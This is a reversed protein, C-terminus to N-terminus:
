IRERHVMSNIWLAFGVALPILFYSALLFADVFNSPNASYGLRFVGALNRIYGAAVPITITFLLIFAAIRGAVWVLAYGRIVRYEQIPIASLDAIRIRPFLHSLQNRLFAQTDNMLNRCGFCTAIVYYLDTRIFLFCQWFIRMVYTFAIARLVRTWGIPVLGGYRHQTALFLVILAGSVADILIGALLPLYRQKKPIAWLGTLDTEAVLYWLRNGIGMRSNIGVARAATLHGLEHVFITAYVAILLITWSLTRHDPFYLDSARPALEPQLGAASLAAAILLCCATLVPRSFIRRAWCQPFDSFHYRKHSQELAKVESLGSVRDEAAFPKVIGNGEMLTLFDNLDPAEGHKREYCNATEGVSKGQALNELIELAERPVAVFVGTEVRGIIADDGELQVAYSRVSVFSAPTYM